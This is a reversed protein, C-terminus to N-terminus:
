YFIEMGLCLPKVDKEKKKILTTLEEQKMVKCSVNRQTQGFFTCQNSCFNNYM